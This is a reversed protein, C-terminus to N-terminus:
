RVLIYPRIGMGRIGLEVEVPYGLLLKLECAEEQLYVEVLSPVNWGRPIEDGVRHAKQTREMEWRWQRELDVGNRPRRHGGRFYGTSVVSRSHTSESCEGISLGWELGILGPISRALRFQSPATPFPSASTRFQVSSPPTSHTPLFVFSIRDGYCQTSVWNGTVDWSWITLQIGLIVHQLHAVSSSPLLVAHVSIFDWILAFLSRSSHSFTWLAHGFASSLPQRTKSRIWALRSSSGPMVDAAEGSPKRALLPTVTARLTTADIAGHRSSM